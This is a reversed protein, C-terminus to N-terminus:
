GQTPCANFNRIYRSRAPSIEQRHVVGGDDPRLESPVHHGEPAGRPSSIHVLSAEPHRREMSSQAQHVAMTELM